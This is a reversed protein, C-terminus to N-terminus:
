RAELVFRPETVDLALPSSRAREEIMGPCDDSKAARYDGCCPQLEICRGSEDCDPAEFQVVRGADKPEGYRCWSIGM